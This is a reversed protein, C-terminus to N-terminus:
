TSEWPFHWWHRYGLYSAEATAAVKRLMLPRSVPADPEAFGLHIVLQGGQISAITLKQRVHKAPFPDGCNEGLQRPQLSVHVHRLQQCFRGM